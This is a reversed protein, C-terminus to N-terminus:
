LLLSVSLMILLVTTITVTTSTASSEEFNGERDVCITIPEDEWTLSCRCSLLQKFLGDRLHTAYGTNSPFTMDCVHSCMGDSDVGLRTCTGLRLGSYTDMDEQGGPLTYIEREVIQDLCFLDLGCACSRVYIMHTANNLEMTRFMGNNNCAVNCSYDSDVQYKACPPYQATCFEILFFLLFSTYTSFMM